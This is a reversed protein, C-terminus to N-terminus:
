AAATEACLAPVGKTSIRYLLRRKGPEDSYETPTASHLVQFNDWLLIDGAEVKYSNVFQPQTCHARLQHVLARGEETEMGEFGYASGSLFLAKRGTVPHRMVLPHRVIGHKATTEPNFPIREGPLAPSGGLCHLGVLNEVQAKMADDLAEYALAASAILTEGGHDPTEVGYLMTISAPVEEYTSDQHWFKAGDRYREPTSASNNIRILEPFDDKRHSPNHFLLPRGWYHGFACYQADSLKQGRIALIQHEHLAAILARMAADSQPFALDINEAIAGFAGPMPTVQM